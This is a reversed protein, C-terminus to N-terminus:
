VCAWGILLWCHVPLCPCCPLVSRRSGAAASGLWDSALSARHCIRYCSCRRTCTAKSSPETRGLRAQAVPDRWRALRVSCALWRALGSHVRRETQETQNWAQEDIGDAWLKWFSIFYRPWPFTRSAKRTCIVQNLWFYWSIYDRDIIFPWIVRPLIVFVSIAISYHQLLCYKRKYNMVIFPDASSFRQHAQCFRIRFCIM